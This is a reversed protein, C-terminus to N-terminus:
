YRFFILAGRPIQSEKLRSGPVFAGSSLRYLTSPDNWRNGCVDFASRKATVAGGYVYGILIRTGAPLSALQSSSLEDGRRAKGDRLVYLTGHSTAAGGAIEKASGGDRGIEKM